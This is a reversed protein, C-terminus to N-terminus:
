PRPQPDDGDLAAQDAPLAREGPAGRGLQRDTRGVQERLGPTCGHEGAVDLDAGVPAPDGSADTLGVMVPVVGRVHPWQLLGPDGHDAPVTPEGARAPDHDLGAVTTALEHGGAVDYQVLRSTTRTVSGGSLRATSPAPGIPTSSACTKARKPTATVRSSVASRIRPPSSGSDLSTTARASTASPTSTRVPTTSRRTSWSPQKRMTVSSPSSEVSATSTAVPRRALRSSRPRSVTPRSGDAPRSVVSSRIRAPSRSHATPSM